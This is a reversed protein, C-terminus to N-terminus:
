KTRGFHNEIMIFKTKKGILEEYPDIVILRSLNEMIKFFLWVTLVPVSVTPQSDFVSIAPELDFIPVVPESDLVPVLTM